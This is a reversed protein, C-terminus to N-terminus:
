TSSRGPRLRIPNARATTLVAHLKSVGDLGLDRQRLAEVTLRKAAERPSRLVDDVLAASKLAPDLRALQKALQRVARRRRDRRGADSYTGWVSPLPRELLTQSATVVDGCWAAFAKHAMTWDHDTLPTRRQGQKGAVDAKRRNLARKSPIPLLEHWWSLAVLNGRFVAELQAALFTLVDRADANQPAPLPESLVGPWLRLLHALTAARLKKARADTGCVLLTVGPLARGLAGRAVSARIEALTPSIPDLTVGVRAPRTEAM